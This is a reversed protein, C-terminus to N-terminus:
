KDLRVPRDPLEPKDKQLNITQGTVVVSTPLTYLNNQENLEYVAGSDLGPNWSDVLLHLNTTGSTFYGFWNSHGAEFSGSNSTLNISQGAGLGSVYWALGYCTSLSCIDHWTKNVRPTASPNIYFDVWFGEAPQSGQNTVTVNITVPQGASFNPGAPSLTFSGVLDPGLKIVVPLYVNNNIIANSWFGSQLTYNDGSLNSTADPQGSSSLLTYPGGTIPTVGGGDITWWTLDYGGGIQAQVWPGGKFILLGVLLIAAALGFLRPATRLACTKKVILNM